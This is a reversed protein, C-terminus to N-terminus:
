QTLRWAWDSLFPYFFFMVAAVALLLVTREKQTGELEPLVRGLVTSALVGLCTGLTNTLLDNVDAARYTFIQLLEILLSMGFGFGVARMGRLDKWLLPVCGGLPVFLAVNLAANKLDEPIGVLPILNLNCGFRVYAVNPLGVLAWVAGLYLAFLGYPISKRWSRFVLVHLLIWVPVLAVAAAATERVVFVIRAM